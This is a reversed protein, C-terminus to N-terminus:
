RDWLPKKLEMEPTVITNAMPYYGRMSAVISAPFARVAKNYESVAAEVFSRAGAVDKEVDVTARQAEQYVGTDMSPNNEYIPRARSAANAAAMMPGMEPPFSGADGTATSSALKERSQIIMNLYQRHMDMAERAADRVDPMTRHVKNLHAALTGTAQEVDARLAVLRANTNTWWVIFMILFIFGVIAAIIFATGM